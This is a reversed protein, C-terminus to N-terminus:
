SNISISSRPDHRAAHAQEKRPGQGPLHKSTSNGVAARDFRGEPGDAVFVTGDDTAFRTGLGRRRQPGHRVRDARWRGGPPRHDAPGCAGSGRLTVEDDARLRHRRRRRRTSSPFYRARPMRRGDSGRPRPVREDPLPGSPDLALGGPGEDGCQAPWSATVKRASLDIRLTQDKDELNTYFLATRTTSRTGKRAEKWSSRRRWKPEAPKSVDLVVISQDHPTTVWVEKTKAVYVVGDPSGPSADRM